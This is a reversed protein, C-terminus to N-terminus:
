VAKKILRLMVMGNIITVVMFKNSEAVETTFDNMVIKNETKM